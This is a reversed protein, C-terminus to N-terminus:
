EITRKIALVVFNGEAEEATIVELAYGEERLLATCRQQQVFGHMSLLIAPGTEHLLSRAGSLADHEAGEIDMKIFAPPPMTARLADLTTTEVEIGGHESLGGMAASASTAFRARGARDSVALPVIHVNQAHNLQVHKKLLELNRPLPEFAYVAGSPGALKSALLTFFGANAGIDYVVDGPQIRDAFTRQAGREYTGIWCGHTAAGAIWRTGRLPGFLVRLVARKPILGLPLRIAAAIARRFM